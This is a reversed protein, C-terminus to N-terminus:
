KLLDSRALQACVRADTLPPSHVDNKLLTFSVNGATQALEEATPQAVWDKEGYYVGIRTRENIQSMDLRSDAIMSLLKPYAHSQRANRFIIEVAHRGLLLKERTEQNRTDSVEQFITRGAIRTSSNGQAPRAMFTASEVYPSDDSFGACQESEAIIHYAPVSGWSRAILHLGSESSVGYDERAKEIAEIRPWAIDEPGVDPRNFWSRKVQGDPTGENGLFVVLNDPFQQSLHWALEGNNTRVSEGLAPCVVVMNNQPDFRYQNFIHTRFVYRPEAPESSDVLIDPHNLEHKFQEQQESDKEYLLGELLEERSMVLHSTSESFGSYIDQPLTEFGTASM